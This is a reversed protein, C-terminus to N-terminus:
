TGLLKKVAAAIRAGEAQGKLQQNASGIVKGMDKMTTAGTDEIIKRIAADLAEDDLQAPLYQKIIAIEEMEVEALDPRNQDQYIKLSDQRQKLLKSLIEIEKEPSLANGSGDTLFLMIASKISRITRMSAKDGSKMATKLDSNLKEELTM